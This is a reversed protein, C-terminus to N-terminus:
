YLFRFENAQHLFATPEHISTKTQVSTLDNIVISRSNTFIRKICNFGVVGPQSKKRGSEEMGWLFAQSLSNLTTMQVSWSSAM